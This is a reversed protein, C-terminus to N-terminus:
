NEQFVHDDYDIEFQLKHKAEEQALALFTKKLEPNDTANALDNYLRFSAKESNMAALMADQVDFDGEDFRNDVMVDVIKLDLIKQKSTLMLKGAKVQELKAKHSKEELAFREFIERINKRSMRAAMRTYFDAADEEKTIAFDLVADVSDFKM